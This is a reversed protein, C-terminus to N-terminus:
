GIACQHPLYLPVLPYGCAHRPTGIPLPQGTTAAPTAAPLHEYPIHLAPLSCSGTRFRGRHDIGDGPIGASVEQDTSSAIPGNAPPVYLTLRTHLRLLRM